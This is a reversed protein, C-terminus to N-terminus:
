IKGQEVLRKIREIIKTTSYGERFPLIIVQEVFEGGVVDEVKYDGGKVLINPKLVSLLEAPTDEEFVVVGDVMALASLMEARDAENNIPRAEGKLRKISEDSNLGIILRNGLQAADRLYALHGGHIIDFCGNTFVVTEGEMQWARICEVMEEVSFYKKSSVKENCISKWLNLLEKRHIPYTGVKSVVIGAAINAIHLMDQESLGAAAATIIMAVVTDGAGSVDFVDQQTAPDHWISGDNAVVTIGKASRTVVVYDFSINKLVEKAAKVVGEDTNPVSYGVYESLEKVNPTIFTARDYKAWNSGKPDVITPINYQRAIKIIDHLVEPTCVGKGYDSIVIGDLGGEALHILWELLRKSENVSVQQNEEFDVRMMQQRDGLIRMKTTTCRNEEYLIGSGDVRQTDLLRLLLEGHSDNGAIGGLFVRCDLNALNSAVNAAGGLVDRIEIVKNVPVPAEPSIRNVDGFLYRDVMVDGIVAVRISPLKETLYEYIINTKM